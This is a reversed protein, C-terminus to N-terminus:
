RSKTLAAHKGRLRAIDLQLQQLTSHGDEYESDEALGEDLQNQLLKNNAHLIENAQKCLENKHQLDAIEKEVVEEKAALARHSERIEEIKCQLSRGIREVSAAGKEIEANIRGRIIQMTRFKNVASLMLQSRTVAIERRMEQALQLKESDEAQLRAIITNCHFVTLQLASINRHNRAIDFRLQEIMLKTELLENTSQHLAQLLSAEKCKEEQFRLLTAKSAAEQLEIHHHLDSAWSSTSSTLSQHRSDGDDIPDAAGNPFTSLAESSSYDFKRSVDKSAAGISSLEEQEDDDDSEEKFPVVAFNPFEPDAGSNRNVEM